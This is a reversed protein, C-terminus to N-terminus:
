LLPKSAVLDFDENRPVLEYSFAGLVKGRQVAHCELCDKTARISGIMRIRHADAEIVLDENFRLRDLAQQEFASLPRTSVNGLEEMLPLRPSLYAVPIEHKLLSVLELRTVRWPQSAQGRPPLASTALSQHRPSDRLPVHESEAHFALPPLPPQDASPEYPEPESPSPSPIRPADLLEPYVFDPDQRRELGFGTAMLFANLTRDHLWPLTNPQYPSHGRAEFRSIREEIPIGRIPWRLQGEIDTWPAEYAGALPVSATSKRELRHLEILTLVDYVALASVVSTTVVAIRPQSKFLAYVVTALIMSLACSLVILSM